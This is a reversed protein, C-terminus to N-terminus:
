LTRRVNGQVQHVYHGCDRRSPQTQGQEQRREAAQPRLKITIDIAFIFIDPVFFMKLSGMMDQWDTTCSLINVATVSAFVKMAIMLTNKANGMLASPAFIILTFVAVAAGSKIIHKIDRADLLSIELLLLVYVAFIYSASRTLSVTLILILSSIMKVRANIGLASKKNSAAQLRFRTLVMLISLISKDIFTDRDGPPIYNDEKLLWEPM